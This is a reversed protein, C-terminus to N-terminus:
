GRLDLGAKRPPLVKESASSARPNAGRPGAGARPLGLPPTTPKDAYFLKPVAADYLTGDSMQRRLTDGPLVGADTPIATAADIWGDSTPNTDQTPAAGTDPAAAGSDGTPLFVNSTEAPGGDAM